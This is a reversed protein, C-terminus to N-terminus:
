FDEEMNQFEEEGFIEIYNYTDNEFEVDIASNDANLVLDCNDYACKVRKQAKVYNDDEVIVTKTLIEKVKIAYKM